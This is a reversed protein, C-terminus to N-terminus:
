PTPTAILLATVLLVVAAGLLEIGASRRLPVPGTEALRPRVKSWNYAGMGLVILVVGLKVLLTRGYPTTWLQGFTDFHLVATLVGTGAAVGAFAMALPSFVAVMDAVMGAGGGGRLAAPVGAVVLVLLTGLWASAALVHVGDSLIAVGRLPEVAAAHGSLAPTFALALAAVTALAWGTEPRRAARAFAVLAALAAAAQLLLGWGWLTDFILVRMLTGTDPGADLTRAQLLARVPVALLLFLAAGRGLRAARAAAEVHAGGTPLNTRGRVTNLVLVRFAVAGIIVLITTLTLWRISVWASGGVENSPASEPPAATSPEPQPDVPVTPPPVVVAAPADVVFAYRGRVPHGDSGIVTWAVTFTGNGPPELIAAVITASTEGARLSDLALPTSDARLLEVRALRPDVPTTYTLRLETPAADLRADKDPVAHDLATHRSTLAALAPVLALTCLAAGIRRRRVM